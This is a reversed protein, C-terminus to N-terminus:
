RIKETTSRVSTEICDPQEVEKSTRIGLKTFKQAAPTIQREFSGIAKNYHEVTNELNNGLKGLHESFTALRKYLDEGLDRITEANDALTQQRWGYAITRLLAVFSTPTALIVKKILAKELLDRDFELAASLFPDGPIFLVVFDPSNKFQKWYNKSALENVRRNVNRAHKELYKNRTQDDPAEIASLYADLPTKVDVIIERSGPIRIIMDPRFAGEPTTTHEQEYFDCFEVMGSLEALRKLTLEGWQGRVEPRRMAQSLNHTETHLMQQTQQMSDLYQSLSGYAEKRDQEVRQIQQDTKNLAEKIPDLMAKISHEKQALDSQSQIHLQKLNENALKLFQENNQNLARTSLMSFTDRLQKQMTHTDARKELANQRELELTTRLKTNEERLESQQRLAWFYTFTWATMASLLATIAFLIYLINETFILKLDM